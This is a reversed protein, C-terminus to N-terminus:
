AKTPLTLHTYSVSRPCDKSDASHGGQCNLCRAEAKCSDSKHGERGCRACVAARRCNGKSHGYRHCGFCRMPNPVYPRVELELYEMKVKPPPKTSEFTLIWTNTLVTATGRRVTIRRAACVGDMEAVMEEESCNGIERSRIVGRSRNLSRHPEVTVSFGGFSKCSKLKEAETSNNVEILLQGTRLRGVSKPKKVDITRLAKGIAFVSLSSM